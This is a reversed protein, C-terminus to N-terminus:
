NSKTRYPRAPGPVLAYQIPLRCSPCSSERIVNSSARVAEPFSRLCETCSLVVVAEGAQDQMASAIWIPASTAYKSETSRNKQVDAITGLLSRLNTAKAYFADAAVGAPVEHASYSDSMAIVTIGPFRRRIVSLLEFGSMGPMHLDSLVIDPMERRIMELASFGDHSSRVGYGSITLVACIAKCLDADNEVVLLLKPGLAPTSYCSALM